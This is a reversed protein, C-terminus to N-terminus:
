SSYNELLTSGNLELWDPSLKPKPTRKSQYAKLDKIGVAKILKTNQFFFRGIAFAGLGNSKKVEEKIEELRKSDFEGKDIIPQFIIALVEPIKTVLDEVNLITQSILINQGVTLSSYKLPTKAFEKGIQFIPPIALSDWDPPNAIFNVIQWVAAELNKDKSNEAISMDLGTLICFLKLVDNKKMTEIQILQELTLEDWSTPASLKIKKKDKDYINFYRM